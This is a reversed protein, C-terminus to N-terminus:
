GLEYRDRGGQKARYLADDARKTLKDLDDAPGLVEAAGMSFTLTRSPPLGAVQLQSVVSRLRAFVVPVQSLDSGPMILLFEEGGYRGLKDNSRMQQACVAAIASLVADGVAHGCEDNISKFDDVDILALCLKTSELRSARLQVRAYEVISRRNPLGTLEDRMALNAFRRNQQGQRFLFWALGGLVILLLTIALWMAVRRAESELERARLLSNEAEKRTVEFRTRAEASEKERVENYNRLEAERLKVQNRWAKEFDGLRAYIEAADALYTVEVWASDIQMRIADAKALTELSERRRDLNAFAKARNRQVNFMMTTDGMLTMVPLARDQYSLADQWRGGEGAVVGLRHNVFAEGNKDDLALFLNLAKQYTFKAKPFDRMKQHVVALNFYITALEHRSSKEAEPPISQEIYSIAKVLDERTSRDHNYANGIAGLAGRASIQDGLKM